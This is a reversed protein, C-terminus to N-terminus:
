PAVEQWSYIPKLMAEPANRAFDPRAIFLEAPVTNNSVGLEQDADDKYDRELSVNTWGVFTGAGIFKLDSTKASGAGRSDVRLTGDAIYVGEIVPTTSGLTSTGVEPDFTIDGSAIIALFGGQAVTIQDQILVDGNVLIVISEGAGVVWPDQITVDGNAYYAERDPNVPNQTETDPKQLNDLQEVSFDSTPASGMSYIRNSFYAFDERFSQRSATTYINSGDENLKSLDGGSYASIVTGGNTGERGAIAFGASGATSSADRRLLYPTCGDLATCTPPVLSRISGADNAEARLSGGMVQYWSDYVKWLGFSRAANQSQTTLSVEAPQCRPVELYVGINPDVSSTDVSLDYEDPVRVNVTSVGSGNSLSGTYLIEPTNLTTLALARAGPIV